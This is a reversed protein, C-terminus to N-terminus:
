QHYEFFELTAESCLADELESRYTEIGVLGFRMTLQITQLEPAGAKRRTVIADAFQRVLAEHMELDTRIKLATLCPLNSVVGESLSGFFIVFEKLIKGYICLDLCLLQPMSDTFSKLVAFSGPISIHLEEVIALSARISRTAASIASMPVGHMHCKKLDLVRLTPSNLTMLIAMESILSSHHTNTGFAVKYLGPLNLNIGGPFSQFDTYALGQLRLDQLSPAMLGSLSFPLISSWVTGPSSLCAIRLSPFFHALSIDTEHLFLDIEILRTCDLYDFFYPIKGRTFSLSLCSTVLSTKWLKFQYRTSTEPLIPYHMNPYVKFCTLEQIPFVQLAQIVLTHSAAISVERQLSGNPATTNKSPVVLFVDVALPSSTRSSSEIATLSLNQFPSCSRYLELMREGATDLPIRGTLSAYQANSFADKFAVALEPLMDLHGVMGVRNRVELKQLNPARWKTASGLWPTADGQYHLTKLRPTNFLDMTLAAWRMSSLSTCSKLKLCRWRQVTLRLFADIDSILDKDEFPLALYEISIDLDCNSSLINGSLARQLVSRADGVPTKGYGSSPVGLHLSALWLRPSGKVILRWRTCVQAISRACPKLRESLYFSERYLRTSNTVVGDQTCHDDNLLIIDHLVELPVRPFM